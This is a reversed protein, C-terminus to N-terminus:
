RESRLCRSSSWSSSCSSSSSALAVSSSSPASRAAAPVVCTLPNVRRRGAHLGNGGFMKRAFPHHYRRRRGARAPSPSATSTDALVHGLRQGHDRAAPLHDLRHTLLEGAAMAFRDGLRRRREVRCRPAPCTGVQQRRDDELLIPLVLRQVPLPVAVRALADIEAQRGQRGPPRRCPPAAAAARGSRPAHAPPSADARVVRRHRNRGLALGGGPPWPGIDAIVRREAACVRRRGQEM